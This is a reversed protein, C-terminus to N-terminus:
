RWLLPQLPGQVPQLTKGAGGPHQEHCPACRSTLDVSQRAPRTVEQTMAVVKAQCLRRASVRAQTPTPPRPLM